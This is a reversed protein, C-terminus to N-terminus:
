VADEFLKGWARDHAPTKFHMMGEGPTFSIDKFRIQNEGIYFDIRAFGFGESLGAAAELADDLMAPRQRHIGSTFRSEIVEISQWDTDYYDHFSGTAGRHVAEIYIRPGAGNGHFCYFRYEQAPEDMSEQPLQEFILQPDIKQYYRIREFLHFDTALWKQGLLNLLNVPYDSKDEVCLEANSGHSAKMLFRHPLAHYQERDLVKCILYCEPLFQKGIKRGVHARAQVRDSLATFDANPMIRRRCIKENFAVPQKLDPFKGFERRYALGIYRADSLHRVAASRFRGM